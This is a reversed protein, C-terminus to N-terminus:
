IKRASKTNNFVHVYETQPMYNSINETILVSQNTDQNIEYVGSLTIYYFIIKGDITYHVFVSSIESDTYINESVFGNIINMYRLTNTGTSYIIWAIDDHDFAWWSNVCEIPPKDNGCIKGNVDLALYNYEMVSVNIINKHILELNISNKDEHLKYLNHSVDLIYLGCKNCVIKKIQMDSKSSDHVLFAKGSPVLCETECIYKECYKLKYLNGYNDSVYRTIKELEGDYTMDIVHRHISATVVIPEGDIIIDTAFIILNPFNNCTHSFNHKTTM